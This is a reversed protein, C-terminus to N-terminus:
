FQLYINADEEYCCNSLFNHQNLLVSIYQAVEDTYQIVPSTNFADQTETIIIIGNSFRYNGVFGLRIISMLHKATYIIDTAKSRYMESVVKYKRGKFNSAYCNIANYIDTSMFKAPNYPGKSRLYYLLDYLIKNADRRDNIFEKCESSDDTIIRGEGAYTWKHLSLHNNNAISSKKWNILKEAPFMLECSDVLRHCVTCLFIANVESKLFEEPYESARPGGKSAAFIHGVDGLNASKNDMDSFFPLYLRCSPNACRFGSESRVSKKINESFNIRNM